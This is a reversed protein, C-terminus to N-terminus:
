KLKFNILPDVLSFPLFANFWCNNAPRPAGVLACSACNKIADNFSFVIPLAGTDDCTKCFPPPLTVCQCEICPIPDTVQAASQGTCLGLPEYYTYPDPCCPCKFPSSNSADAWGMNSLMCCKNKVPSTDPNSVKVKAGGFTVYFGDQDVFVFPAPCCPCPIADVSTQPATFSDCMGTSQNYTYGDPCCTNLAM